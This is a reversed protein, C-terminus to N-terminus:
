RQAYLALGGPTVSIRCNSFGQRKLRFLLFPAAPALCDPFFLACEKQRNVASELDALYLRVNEPPVHAYGSPIHESPNSAVGTMSCGNRQPFLANASVLLTMHIQWLLNM